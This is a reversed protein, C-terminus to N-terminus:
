LDCVCECVSVYMSVFMSVYMCVLVQLTRTHARTPQRSASVPTQPAHGHRPFNGLSVKCVNVSDCFVM